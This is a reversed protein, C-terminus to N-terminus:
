SHIWRPDCRSGLLGHAYVHFGHQLKMCGAHRGEVVAVVDPLHSEVHAQLLREGKGTENRGVNARQKAAADSWKAPCREGAVGLVDIPGVRPHFFENGIVRVQMIPKIKRSCAYTELTQRRADAPNTESLPM